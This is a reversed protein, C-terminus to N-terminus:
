SLQPSPPERRRELATRADELLLRLEDLTVEDREMLAHVTPDSLVEDLTPEGELWGM